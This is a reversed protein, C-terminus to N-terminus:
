RAAEPSRNGVRRVYWGRALVFGLLAATTAPWGRWLTLAHFGVLTVSARLLLSGAVLSAPHRHTPLRRVTVALGAFFFMGLVAGSFSAVLVTILVPSPAEIMM